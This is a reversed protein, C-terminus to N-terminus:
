DDAAPLRQLRHQVRERELLQKGARLDLASREPVARLRTLERPHRNGEVAARALRGAIRDADDPLRELLAKQRRGRPFVLALEAVEARHAAGFLLAAGRALRLGLEPGQELQPLLRSPRRRCRACRAQAEA